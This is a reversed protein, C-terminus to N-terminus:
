GPDLQSKIFRFRHYGDGLHGCLACSGCSQDNRGRLSLDRSRSVQQLALLCSTWAIARLRTSSVKSRCGLHTVGAARRECYRRQRHAHNAAGKKSEQYRKAARRVSDRRAEASCRESCYVRGRDCSSCVSALTGCRGCSFMRQAM